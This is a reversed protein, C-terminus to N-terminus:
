RTPRRTAAQDTPPALSLWSAIDVQPQRLLTEVANLLAATTGGHIRVYYAGDQGDSNMVGGVVRRGVSDIAAQRATQSTGYRFEVLVIDRRYPGHTLPPGDVVGLSDFLAHPVSDPRLIPKRYANEDPHTLEWWGAMVVAPQRHLIQLAALLASMTGGHIRVYYTGESVVEYRSGGVVVGGISDIIAQRVALPTGHRFDITVIDKRFRSGSSASTVTGLSDFLAKPFFNPPLLAVGRVVRAPGFGTGQTIGHRTAADYSKQAVTATEIVRRAVDSARMSVLSCPGSLARLQDKLERGARASIDKHGAEHTELAAIFRNWEAVVSSDADAPPTWRPLLIQADVRVRVDRMTCSGGTTSETRWSWSMPSRTEGVFSGGFIKPGLRRMDAHLETYSRGHVDYYTVSTRGEVGAPYSDLVPNRSPSACSTACTAFGTLFCTRLVRRELLLLV